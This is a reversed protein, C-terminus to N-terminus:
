HRDLMDLLTQAAGIHGIISMHSMGNKGLLRLKM